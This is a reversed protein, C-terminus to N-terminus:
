RQKRGSRVPNMPNRRTLGLGRRQAAAGTGRHRSRSRSNLGAIASQPNLAGSAGRRARGRAMRDYPWQCIDLRVRAVSELSESAQFTERIPFTFWPSNYCVSDLRAFRIPRRRNRPPAGPGEWRPRKSFARGGRLSGGQSSRRCRPLRSSLKPLPWRARITATSFAAASSLARRGDISNTPPIPAVPTGTERPAHSRHFHPNHVRRHFM